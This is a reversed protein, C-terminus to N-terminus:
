GVSPRPLSAVFAAAALVAAGRGGFKDLNKVAYSSIVALSLAAFTKRYAKQTDTLTKDSDDVFKNAGGCYQYWFFALFAVLVGKDNKELFNKVAPSWGGDTLMTLPKFRMTWSLPGAVPLTLDLNPMFLDKVSWKGQLIKFISLGLSASIANKGIKGLNYKVGAFTDFGQDKAVDATAVVCNGANEIREGFTQTQSALAKDEAVAAFSAVPALLSLAFLSSLVIKKM